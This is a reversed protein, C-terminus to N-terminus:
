KYLIRRVTEESLCYAQALAEIGAHDNYYKFRIEENRQEYYIRAGSDSGWKKRASEAPIYLVEGAAYKQIEKLLADPLIESANRYKM